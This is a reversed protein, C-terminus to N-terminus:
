SMAIKRTLEKSRANMPTRSEGITRLQVHQNKKTQSRASPLVGNKPILNPMPKHNEENKNMLYVLQEAIMMNENNHVSSASMICNNIANQYKNSTNTVGNALRDKLTVNRSSHLNGKARNVSAMEYIM